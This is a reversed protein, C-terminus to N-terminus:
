RLGEYYAKINDIHEVLADSYEVNFFTSIKEVVSVPLLKDGSFFSALDRENIDILKACDSKRKVTNPNNKVYDEISRKIKHAM